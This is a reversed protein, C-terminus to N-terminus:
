MEYSKGKTKLSKLKNFTFSGAWLASLKGALFLGIKIAGRIRV